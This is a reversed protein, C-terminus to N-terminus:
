HMYIIYCNSYLDSIWLVVIGNVTIMASNVLSGAGLRCTYNGSHSQSLPSFQLTSTYTGNNLVTTTPTVGSPLPADGNPGFFWEFTPPPIDPDPLPPNNSNLTASCTLSYTVGVTTSSSSFIAVAIDNTHLFFVPAHFGIYKLLMCCRHLSRSHMIMRFKCINAYLNQNVGSADPLECHFLGREDATFRRWLRVSGYFQQNGIVENAGRNSQFTGPGGTNFVVTRGDPYYWDGCVTHPSECCDVLDTVCMLTQLRNANTPQGNDSRYLLDDYNVLSNNPITQGLLLLSVGVAISIHHLYTKISLTM